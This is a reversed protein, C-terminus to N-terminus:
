GLLNSLRPFECARRPRSENDILANVINNYRTTLIVRLCERV